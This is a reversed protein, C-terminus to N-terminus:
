NLHRYDVTGIKFNFYTGRSAQEPFMINSTGVEQPNLTCLIDDLDKICYSNPSHQFYNLYFLNRFSIYFQVPTPNRNNGNKNHFMGFLNELCDQILRNTYSVFNNPNETSEKLSDWLKLLGNISILWGNIFNGNVKLNQFLSLMM